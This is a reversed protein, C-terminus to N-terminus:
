SSEVDPTQLIHSFNQFPINQEAIINIAPLEAKEIVKDAPPSISVSDNSSQYLPAPQNAVESLEAAEATAKAKNKRTNNCTERTHILGSFRAIQVNIESILGSYDIDPYTFQYFNIQEFLSRLVYHAEKQVAKSDIKPRQSIDRSRENSLKYHEDNAKKMEDLYFKMGLTELANQLDPKKNLLDFFTTLTQNIVYQNNQRLYYLHLKVFPHALELLERTDDLNMKKMFNMQTTIAASYKLRKLHLQQIVPTLIHKGYPVRLLAMKSRQDLLVNYADQLKLAKPNHKELCTTIKKVFQPLELKLLKTLAINQIKVM